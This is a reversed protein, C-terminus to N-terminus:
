LDDLYIRLDKLTGSGKLGLVEAIDNVYKLISIIIYKLDPSSLLVLLNDLSYKILHDEESPVAMPAASLM